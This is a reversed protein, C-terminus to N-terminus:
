CNLRNSSDPSYLAPSHSYTSPPKPTITPANLRVLGTQLFPLRLGYQELFPRAIWGFAALNLIVLVLLAIILGRPSSSKGPKM